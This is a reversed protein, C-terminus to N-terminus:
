LRFFQVCVLAGRFRDRYKGFRASGARRRSRFSRVQANQPLRDYMKRMFYLPEGIIRAQHGVVEIAKVPCNRLCKYCDKCRAPKFELYNM